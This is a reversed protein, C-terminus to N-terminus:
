PMLDVSLVNVEDRTFRYVVILSPAGIWPEIAMLYTSPHVKQLRFAGASPNRSLRWELGRYVETLAPYQKVAADLADSARKELVVSRM